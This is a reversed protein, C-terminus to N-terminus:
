KGDRKVPALGDSFRGAQEFQAKIVWKGNEDVYGWLANAGTGVLVPELRESSDLTGTSSIPQSTTSVDGIKSMTEASGAQDSSCGPFLLIFGLVIAVALLAPAGRLGGLIREIVAIRHRGGFNM